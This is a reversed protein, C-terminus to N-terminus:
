LVDPTSEGDEMPLFDQYVEESNKQLFLHKRTEKFM